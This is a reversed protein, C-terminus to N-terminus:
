MMVYLTGPTLIVVHTPVSTCPIPDHWLLRLGLLRVLFDMLSDFVRNQPTGLPRKSGLKQVTQIVLNHEVPECRGLHSSDKIQLKALNFPTEALSALRDLEDVGIARNRSKQVFSRIGFKTCSRHLASELLMQNEWQRPKVCGLLQKTALRNTHIPGIAVLFDFERKGFATSGCTSEAVLRSCLAERM